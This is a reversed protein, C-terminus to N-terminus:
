TAINFDPFQLQLETLEEWTADEPFSNSWQILGAVVATNGKKMLKRELITVPYVKVRGEDDVIPLTQSVIAVEGVKKRLLSVHFVPHVASGPPLQLKYAVTGIRELIQYPGYYRLNLKYHKRYMVSGQRYPQLKLFVWDGIFFTRESQRKDAVQRMRNRAGELLGKILQDMNIRRQMWEEVVVVQTAETLVMERAPPEYGYLAQFPSKGITSHFSSNYWLQATSIWQHWKKPCHMTICRLYTELCQNVRKTQRDTQPHYATSLLLKVGLHKFLEKWFLSTFVKDRHTLITAPLGHFKYIHDLFYKAVDQATFPHALTIFHGYKTFRDIIVMITDRSELKLLGEIFYM